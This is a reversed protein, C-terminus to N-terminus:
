GRALNSTVKMFAFNDVAGSDSRSLLGREDHLERLRVAFRKSGFALSVSFDHPFIQKHGGGDDFDILDM